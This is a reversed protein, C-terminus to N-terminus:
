PVLTFGFKELDKAIAKKNTKLAGGNTALELHEKVDWV